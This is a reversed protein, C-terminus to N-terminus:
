IIVVRLVFQHMNSQSNKLFNYSGYGKLYVGAQMDLANTM